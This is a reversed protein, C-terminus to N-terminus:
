PRVEKLVGLMESHILTNTALITKGYISYPEGAYNTIKGGAENVIVQGAATDWPNLQLEWFGDLRGCAIYCLDIAATGTRRMGRARLTFACFEKLNNDSATHIDYAFGTVLLAEALNPTASVQIPTGNLTAGRGQQGLFLENRTPDFIVGIVCAGQYEVGISVNYMPFGHAFNITGDLPDIIWKIPHQPIDQLGQEESLIQHEPFTNRITQIIAEESRLDAETVLNIAQGKSHITFGKKAYDQLIAGGLRAAHIATQTLDDIENSSLPM